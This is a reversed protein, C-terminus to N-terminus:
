SMMAAFMAGRIGQIPGHRWRSTGDRAAQPSAHLWQDGEALNNFLVPRWNPRRREKQHYPRVAYRSPIAKTPAPLLRGRKQRQLSWTNTARGGEASSISQVSWSGDRESQM